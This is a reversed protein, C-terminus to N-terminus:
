MRLEVIDGEQLVYDRQVMLGKVGSSSWVRAYRLKQLFDKHINEALDQITSGKDLVFPANPDHRKRPAKTYVRVINLAEYLKIKLEDLNHGDKSSIAVMPVRDGMLEKLIKFHESAMPLDRKNGVMLAKKYTWGGGQVKEDTMLGIKFKHLLAIIEEAQNLPDRSLDVVLMLLDGRRIIDLLWPEMFDAAFPPTDVLQIQINEFRLMGPTPRRTTFPYEAVEPSANSAMSVLRSKGVNPPGVLVVQGAGEREVAYSFTRKGTKKKKQLEARLKALKRRLDGHLRDTGKHKPMITLMAQLAEIKEEVTKALRYRGEAEFYQPPLNAPM